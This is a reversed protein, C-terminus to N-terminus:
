IYIWGLDDKPLIMEIVLWTLDELFHSQLILSKSLSPLNIHLYKIMFSIIRVQNEKSESQDSTKSTDQPAEKVPKGEPDTVAADEDEDDRYYLSLILDLFRKICQGQNLM